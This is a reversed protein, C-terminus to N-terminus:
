KKIKYKREDMCIYHENTVENGFGFCGCIELKELVVMVALIRVFEIETYPGFYYEDNM